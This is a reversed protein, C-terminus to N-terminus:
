EADYGEFNSEREVDSNFGRIIVCADDLHHNVRHDIVNSTFV